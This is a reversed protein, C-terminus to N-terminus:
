PLLEFIGFDLFGWVGFDSFEFIRFDSFRFIQIDSFRFIQFDSFEFIQFDLFNTFGDDRRVNSLAASRLSTRAFRPGLSALDTRIRIRTRANKSSSCLMIEATEKGVLVSRLM